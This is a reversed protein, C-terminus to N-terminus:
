MFHVILENIVYKIFRPVTCIPMYCVLKVLTVDATRSKALKQNRNKAYIRMM